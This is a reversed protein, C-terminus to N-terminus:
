YVHIVVEDTVPEKNKYAAILGAYCFKNLGIGAATMDRVIAFNSPCGILHWLLRLNHIWCFFLGRLMMNQFSQIFTSVSVDVLLASFNQRQM